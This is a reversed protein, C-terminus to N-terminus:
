KSNGPYCGPRWRYPTLTIKGDSSIKIGEAMLANRQRDFDTGKLSIIGRSNIVRHWPLQSQEPLQSLAKGVQRAYGPYGAMAAIDGYTSIKGAPIQYIVTYIKELFTNM